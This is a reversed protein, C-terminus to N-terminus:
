RSGLDMQELASGDRLRELDRFYGLGEAYETLLFFEEVEGLSVLRGDSRFGGVDLSRVHNSLRRFADNSWLLVQARDAMHEHGFPGPQMTHLVLSETQQGPQQCDIRVPSGYGCFKTAKDNRDQGLVSLNVVTVPEGRLSSLYSQIRELTLENM